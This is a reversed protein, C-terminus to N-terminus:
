VIGYGDHRLFIKGEFFRVELWKFGGECNGEFFGGLLSAFGMKCVVKAGANFCM